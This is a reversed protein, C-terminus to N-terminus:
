LFRQTRKKFGAAFEIIACIKDDDQDYKEIKGIQDGDILLSPV